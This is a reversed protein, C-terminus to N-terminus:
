PETYIRQPSAESIAVVDFALALLQAPAACTKPSAPFYTTAELEPSRQLPIPRGSPISATRAAFN